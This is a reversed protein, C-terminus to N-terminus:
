ASKGFEHTPKSDPRVGRSGPEPWCTQMIRDICIAHYSPDREIAVFGRGLAKAAVATTGSGCFPDLVVDGENSWYRIFPTIVSLPKQAPHATREKGACIPATIVNHAYGLEYNFTHKGKGKTLIVFVELASAWKVKRVQPVPNTKHWGGVDRLYGGAEEAAEILSQLDRKGYFSIFVGSPKLVRFCAQVWAFDQKQDWEFHPDINTTHARYITATNTLGYPPDTLVLDVTDSGIRPLHELWDGLLLQEVRAKM